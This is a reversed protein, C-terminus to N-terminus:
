SERRPPATSERVILEHDARISTRRAPEGRLEGLLLNAGLVGQAYPDQAITTLGFSTAMDHNDIGIVSVDEPVRLGSQQAALVAGFAMEDSSAFVATPRASTRFVQAIVERSAEVAFGGSLLWEDRIELNAERMAEMFGARRDVPLRSNLGEDDPGGLHVIDRHGLEILHETARRAVARDDVGINRIGPVPGGIALIPHGLSLLQQREASTFDVGIAIFADTRKRLLTRHFTRERDGERSALNYLLMDFGADRLASDVGELVTTYFWRSVSPVAVGMTDTRGSALGSANSSAVYGLEDAIGRIRLRTPESVNPLGRLARSVTATSVGAAQAVDHISSM